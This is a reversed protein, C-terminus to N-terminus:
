IPKVPLVVSRNVGTDGCVCTICQASVKIVLCCPIKVETMIKHPWEWNMTQKQSADNQPMSLIEYTDCLLLSSFILSLFLHSYIISELCTM